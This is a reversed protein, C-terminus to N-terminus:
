GTTRVEVFKMAWVVVRESVYCGWGVGGDGAVRGGEDGSVISMLICQM